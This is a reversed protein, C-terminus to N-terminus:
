PLDIHKFLAQSPLHFKQTQHSKVHQMDHVFYLEQNYFSIIFKIPSCM